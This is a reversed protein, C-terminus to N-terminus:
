GPITYVTWVAPGQDGSGCAFMGLGLLLTTLFAAVRM